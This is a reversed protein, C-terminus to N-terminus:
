KQPIVMSYHASKSNAHEIQAAKSKDDTEKGASPDDSTTRCAPLLFLMLVAIFLCIIRKMM